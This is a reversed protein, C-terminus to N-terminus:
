ALLERRAGSTRYIKRWAVLTRIFYSVFYARIGVCTYVVDVFRNNIERMVIHIQLFLKVSPCTSVIVQQGSSM